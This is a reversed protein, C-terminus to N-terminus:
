NLSYSPVEVDELEREDWTDILNVARQKFKQGSGHWLSKLRAEEETTEGVARTTKEHDAFEVLAQAASYRTGRIRDTFGTGDEFLEVCKAVDNKTKSSNWEGEDDTPFLEFCLREFDELSFPADLFHSFMMDLDDFYTSARALVNKARELQVEANSTHKLRFRSSVESRRLSMNLTNQCVVRVDTPFVELACSGDHSTRCILYRHYEENVDGNVIHEEGELLIWVVEGRGLAGATEYEYPGNDVVADILEFAEDNQIVTYDSGVIGLVDERDCRVTAVHGDWRAYDLPGENKEYYLRRKEVTWDLGALELAENMTVAGNVKTGQGHWPTAGKYMMSDVNASM